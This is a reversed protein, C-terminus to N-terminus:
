DVAVEVDDTKEDVSVEVDDAKVEVVVEEKVEMLGSNLKDSKELKKLFDSTSAFAFYFIGQFSSLQMIMGRSMQLEELHICIMDINESITYNIENKCNRSKLSNKSFFALVLSSNVLRDAIVEPWEDGAHIGDDYWIRYGNDHLAEIIPMIIKSDKHAYSVFIYKEKGEYAEFSCKM